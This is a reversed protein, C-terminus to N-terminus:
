NNLISPLKIKGTYTINLLVTKFRQEKNSLNYLRHTLVQM